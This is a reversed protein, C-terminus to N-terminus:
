ITDIKNITNIIRKGSVKPFGLLALESFSSPEEVVDVVATLIYDRNTDNRSQISKNGRGM